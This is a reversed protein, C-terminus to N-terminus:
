ERGEEDAPHQGADRDPEEDQLHDVLRPGDAARIVGDARGDVQDDAKQREPDRERDGGAAVLREGLSAGGRLAAFSSPRSASAPSGFSGHVVRM